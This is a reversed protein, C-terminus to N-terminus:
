ELLTWCHTWSSQVLSNDAFAGHVMSNKCTDVTTYRSVDSRTINSPQAPRLRRASHNNNQAFRFLARNPQQAVVDRRMPEVWSRMDSCNRDAELFRMPTECVGTADDGRDRANGRKMALVGNRFMELSEEKM